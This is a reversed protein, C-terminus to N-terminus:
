NKHCIIFRANALYVPILLLQSFFSKSIYSTHVSGIRPVLRLMCHNRAQNPVM